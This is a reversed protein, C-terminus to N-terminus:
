GSPVYYSAARIVDNLLYGVTAIIKDGDTRELAVTVLTEVLLDAQMRELASLGAKDLLPAVAATIAPLTSLTDDGLAQVAKAIAIIKAAREAKLAPSAQDREVVRGVATVTVAQIAIRSLAAGDGSARPASACGAVVLAAVAAIPVLLARLGKTAYKM